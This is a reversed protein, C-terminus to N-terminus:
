RAGTRLSALLRRLCDAAEARHDETVPHTSFRAERYLAALRRIAGEEAAGDLRYSAVVRAVLETPTEEPRHAFHEGEVAQELRVWAAVIANRPSGEGLMRASEDLAESLGAEEDEPPPEAEPLPTRRSGIRRSLQRRRRVLRLRAFVLLAVAFIVAAPVLLLASIPPAWPLWRDDGGDDSRPQEQQQTEDARDADDQEAAASPDVRDESATWRAGDFTTAVLACLVLVLAGMTLAGHSAPRPSPPGM